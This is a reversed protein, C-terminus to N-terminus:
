FPIVQLILLHNQESKINEGQNWAREVKLKKKGTKTIDFMSYSCPSFSIQNSPRNLVSFFHSQTLLDVTKYYNQPTTQATKSYGNTVM